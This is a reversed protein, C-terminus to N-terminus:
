STTAPARRRAIDTGPGGICCTTARAASSRTTAPAASSCTTATAATSRHAPGLGAALAPQRRGRRRRGARQGDAPRQRRDRRVGLGPRGPRQGAREPRRRHRTVVDDGNTANVIVNDAAGDDGGGDAALDATVSTVDTGSLDNVVLNDAGGLAKAVISEVDNLDMTIAAVDRTFRVRGGNASVDMNEDINAGNFVM